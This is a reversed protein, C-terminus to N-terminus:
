AAGRAAAGLIAGVNEPAFFRAPSLTGANM